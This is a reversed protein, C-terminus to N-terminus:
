KQHTKAYHTSSERNETKIRRLREQKIEEANMNLNYDRFSIGANTNLLGKEYESLPNKIEQSNKYAITGSLDNKGIKFNAELFGSRISASNSYTFIQSNNDLKSYIADFFEKTWLTPLKKPDFADLFVINQKDKIKFISKRADNIYVNFTFKKINSLKLAKKHRISIYNYYTNHLLLRNQKLPHIKSKSYKIKEKFFQYARKDIFDKHLNLTKNIEENTFHKKLIQMIRLRIFFNYHTSKIFPSLLILTRNYELISITISKFNNIFNKQSFNQILAITNYGIGYCIDAIKLNRIEKKQDIYYLAPIAFKEYAETYAGQKAHYIDQIELNYLGFSEDETKRFEFKEM